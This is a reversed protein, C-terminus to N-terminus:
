QNPTIDLLAGNVNRMAGLALLCRDLVDAEVALLRGLGNDLADVVLM